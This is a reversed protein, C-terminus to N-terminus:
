SQTTWKQKEQANATNNAFKKHEVTSRYNANDKGIRLVMPKGESDSDSSYEFGSNGPTVLDPLKNKPDDNDNHEVDLEPDSEEYDNEPKDPSSRGSDHDDSAGDQDSDDSDESDSLDPVDSPDSVDEEEDKDEDDEKSQSM